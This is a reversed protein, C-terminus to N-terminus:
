ADEETSAPVPFWAEDGPHFDLRDDYDWTLGEVPIANDLDLRTGDDLCGVCHVSSPICGGELYCPVAEVVYHDASV